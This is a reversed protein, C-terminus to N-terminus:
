EEDEELYEKNLLYDRLFRESEDLGPDTWYKRLPSQLRLLFFLHVYWWM